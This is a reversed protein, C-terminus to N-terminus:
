PTAAQAVLRDLLGAVQHAATATKLQALTGDDSLARAVAALLRLHSQDGVGAFGIALRVHEGPTWEVGEPIPVIVLANRM